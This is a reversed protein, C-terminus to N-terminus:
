KGVQSLLSIFQQDWNTPDSVFYVGLIKLYTEQHIGLAVPPLPRKVKGRVVMEKTKTLNITM